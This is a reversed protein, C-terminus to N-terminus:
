KRLWELWTTHTCHVTTSARAKSRAGGLDMTCVVGSARTDAGISCEEQQQQGRLGSSTNKDLELEPQVTEVMERRLSEAHEEPRPEVVASCTILTSDM